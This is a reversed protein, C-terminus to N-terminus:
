KLHLLKTFLSPKYRTGRQINDIKVRIWEKLGYLSTHGTPGDVARDFPIYTNVRAVYEMANLISMYMPVGAEKTDGQNKNFLDFVAQPSNIPVFSLGSRARPLKRDWEVDDRIFDAISDIIPTSIDPNFIKELLLALREEFFKRFKPINLVAVMLPRTQVGGYDNYNGVRIAKMTIPGSGFTLDFDWSIYVFKKEDPLQYIFYNDTNMLYADWSGTIFDFAMNTLFGEVDFHKVWEEATADLQATNMAGQQTTQDHIFKIFTILGNLTKNQGKPKEDIGYQINSYDQPKDGMYTLSARTKDNSGGLGEYLYGIDYKSKGGGFENKLWTKDIKEALIFLGMERQNIIVRIYSEQSCPLSAAVRASSALYERIYSPDNGTTRVKLKRYGFLDQGKPIKLNYALKTILRTSRGGISIKVGTLEKVTNASIYTFNGHIDIDKLYHTHMNDIDKQPATIHITPIEGNPHLDTKARDYPDPLSLSPLSKVPKITWPRGYFENVINERLPRVFSEKELVKQTQRNIKAYQYPVNGAAEVQHLVSGPSVPKM